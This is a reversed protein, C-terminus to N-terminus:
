SLRASGVTEFDFTLQQYELLQSFWGGDSTLEMAELWSHACWLAIFQAAKHPVM